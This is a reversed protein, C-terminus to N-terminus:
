TLGLHVASVAAEAKSDVHLKMYIRKIHGQVTGLRIGCVVAIESYRLGRALLRLVERERPTLPPISPDPSAIPESARSDSQM